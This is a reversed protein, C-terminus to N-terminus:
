KNHVTIIVRSERHPNGFFDDVCCRKMEHFAGVTSAKVSYGLNRRKNYAHMFQYSAQKAKKNVKDATSSIISSYILNRIIGM